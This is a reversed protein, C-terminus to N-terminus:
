PLDTATIDLHEKEKAGPCQEVFSMRVVHMCTEFRMASPVLSGNATASREATQLKADSDPPLPVMLLFSILSVSVGPLNGSLAPRLRAHRLQAKCTQLIELEM